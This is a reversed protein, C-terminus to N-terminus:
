SNFKRKSLLKRVICRLKRIAVSAHLYSEGLIDTYLCNFASASLDLCSMTVM